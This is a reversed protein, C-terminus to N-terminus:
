AEIWFVLTRDLGGSLQLEYQGASLKAFEVEIAGNSQRSDIMRGDRRLEIRTASPAAASLQLTVSSESERLLSYSLGAKDGSRTRAQDMLEVRRLTEALAPNRVAVPAANELSLGSLVQRIARLGAGALEIILDPTKRPPTEVGLGRDVAAALAEPLPALEGAMRRKLELIRQMTVMQASTLPPLQEGRSLADAMAALSDDEPLAQESALASLAALGEELRFLRARARGDEAARDYATDPQELLQQLWQEWSEGSM